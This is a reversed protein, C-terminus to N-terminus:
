PFRVVPVIETQIQTPKFHREFAKTAATPNAELMRAALEDFEDPSIKVFVNLYSWCYGSHVRVGIVVERDVVALGMTPERLAITKAVAEITM